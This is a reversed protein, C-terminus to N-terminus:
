KPPANTITTKCADDVTITGNIIVGKDLNLYLVSGKGYPTNAIGCVLNANKDKVWEKLQEGSMNTPSAPLSACGTLTLILFVLVYRM